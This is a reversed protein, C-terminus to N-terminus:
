PLTNRKVSSIRKMLNTRFFAYLTRDLNVLAITAAFIFFILFDAAIGAATKAPINLSTSVGLGIGALLVSLALKYLPLKMDYLKKAFKQSLYFICIYSLMLSLAAGVFGYIPILALNLVTILVAAINMTTSIYRTQETIFFSYQYFNALCYFINATVLYPIAKHASHYASDALLFVLVEGFIALGLGSVILLVYVAQFVYQHISDFDDRDKIRFREASWYNFIPTFILAGIVAALREALSFIGLEDITSFINIFIRNSSGVYLSVLGSLWLPISFIFMEKGFKKNVSKGIKRFVFLGLAGSFLISAIATATAMGIIGLELWVIFYINFTLQLLLKSISLFFYLRVYNKIRIYVLSLVEIAQTTILILFLAVVNSLEENNFLFLAIESSFFIGLLTATLSFSWTITMCTAVVQRQAAETTQDHYYKQMAYGLRAGLTMEILSVTFIMLAAIGYDAPALYRTYIPLM